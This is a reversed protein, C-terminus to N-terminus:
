LAVAGCGRCRSGRCVGSGCACVVVGYARMWGYRGDPAASGPRVAAAMQALLHLGEALRQRDQWSLPVDSSYVQPPLM